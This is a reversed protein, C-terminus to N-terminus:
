NKIFSEHSKYVIDFNLGKRVSSLAKADLHMTRNITCYQQGMAFPDSTRSLRMRDRYDKLYILIYENFVLAVSMYLINTVSYNAVDIAGFNGFVRLRWCISTLLIM